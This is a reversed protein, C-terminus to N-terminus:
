TVTSGSWRKGFHQGRSHLKLHHTQDKIWHGTQKLQKLRAEDQGHQM